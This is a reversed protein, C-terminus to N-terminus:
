DYLDCPGKHNFGDKSLDCVITRHNAGIPDFTNTENSDAKYATPCLHPGDGELLGVCGVTGLALKFDGHKKKLQKLVSVIQTM